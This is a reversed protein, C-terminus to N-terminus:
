EVVVYGIVPEGFLEGDYEVDATLAHIGKRAAKKVKVVLSVECVEGRGVEYAVENVEFDVDGYGRPRVFGSVDRQADNVIRLVVSVSEGEKAAVRAPYYTVWYPNYGVNAREPGLLDRIASTTEIGWEM